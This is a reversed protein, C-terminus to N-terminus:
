PGTRANLSASAFMSRRVNSIPPPTPTPRITAKATQGRCRALSRAVRLPSCANPANRLIPRSPRTVTATGCTSVPCPTPRRQRLDDGVFQARRPLRDRDFRGREGRSRWDAPRCLLPQGSPMARDGGARSRDARELLRQALGAGDARAISIAAAASRQSTSGASHSVASPKTSCCPASRSRRRARRPRRRGFGATAGASQACM